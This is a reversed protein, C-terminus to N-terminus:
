SARSQGLAAQLGSAEAVEGSPLTVVVRGRERLAAAPSFLDVGVVVDEDTEAFCFVHGEATEKGVVPVPQGTRLYLIDFDADYDVDEFSYPGIRVSM